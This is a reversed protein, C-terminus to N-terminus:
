TLGLAAKLCADVAAMAVSPLSGLRGLILNRDRTTLNECQVVSDLRLGGQTAEPSGAAIFCHTPSAVMRNRSSTIAALIVDDLRGNWFDGQVVLAPRRKSGTRDSYPFDLLVVDGRRFRM